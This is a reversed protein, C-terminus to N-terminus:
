ESDLIVRLYNPNYGQSLYQKLKEDCQERTLKQASSDILEWGDTFSEEIRYLTQKM